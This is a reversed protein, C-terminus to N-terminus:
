PVARSSTPLTLVQQLVDMTAEEVQPWTAKREHESTHEVSALNFVSTLDAGGLDAPRSSLGGFSAGRLDCNRFFTHSFDSGGGLNCGVLTSECFTSASASAGALNSGNLNCVTFSAASININPLDLGAFVCTTLSASPLQLRESRCRQQDSATFVSDAISASSFDAGNFTCDEFYLTSGRLRGASVRDFNCRVFRTRLLQTKPGFRAESFDVDEMRSDIIRATELGSGRFANNSPSPQVYHRAVLEPLRGLLSNVVTGHDIPSLPEPVFPRLPPPIVPRGLVEGLREAFEQQLELLRARGVAADGDEAVEYGLASVRRIYAELVPQPNESGRELLVRLADAARKAEAVADVCTRTGPESV